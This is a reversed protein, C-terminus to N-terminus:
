LGIGSVKESFLNGHSVAKTASFNLNPRMEHSRTLAKRSWAPCFLPLASPGTGLRIRIQKPPLSGMVVLPREGDGTIRVEWVWRSEKKNPGIEWCPQALNKLRCMLKPSPLGFVLWLLLHAGWCVLLPHIAGGEWVRDSPNLLSGYWNQGQCDLLVWM